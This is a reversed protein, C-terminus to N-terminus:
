KVCRVQVTQESRIGGIGTGNNMMLGGSPGSQMADVMQFKGGCVDNARTVCYSARRCTIIWGDSGDALAVPSAYSMVGPGAQNTACAGLLALLLISARM